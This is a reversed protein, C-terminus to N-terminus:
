VMILYLDDAQALGEAVFEWVQLFYGLLIGSSKNYALSTYSSAVAM